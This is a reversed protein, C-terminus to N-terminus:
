FWCLAPASVVVGQSLMKYGVDILTQTLGVVFFMKM